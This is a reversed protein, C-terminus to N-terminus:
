ALLGFVTVLVTVVTFGLILTWQLAAFRKDSYSRMEDFRKDAADFREAMLERQAKLEEEVRVM